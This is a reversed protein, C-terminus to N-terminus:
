VEWSTEGTRGKVELVVIEDVVRRGREKEAM